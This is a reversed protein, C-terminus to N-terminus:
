IELDAVFKAREVNLADSDGDNFEVDGAEGAQSDDPVM